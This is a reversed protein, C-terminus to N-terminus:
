GKKPRRREGIMALAAILRLETETMALARLSRRATKYHKGSQQAPERLKGDRAQGEAQVRGPFEELPREIGIMTSLEDIEETGPQMASPAIRQNKEEREPDRREDEPRSLPEPVAAAPGGDEEDGEAERVRDPTFPEVRLHCERPLVGLGHGADESDSQGRERM